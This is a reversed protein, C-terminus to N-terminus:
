FFLIPFKCSSIQKTNKKSQLELLLNRSLPHLFTYILLMYSFLKMTSAFIFLIHDPHHTGVMAGNLDGLQDGMDFGKESLIEMAEEWHLICPEDTFEVPESDYQTRIIAVEKAFRTELGNFIYKFLGHLVELTEDYHDKIEMELDLGTFECLHRRTNSNEARFVPGIEFVRPFDSSIAM